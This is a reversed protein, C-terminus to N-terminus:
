SKNQVTRVLAKLREKVALYQSLPREFEDPRPQYSNDFWHNLSAGHDASLRSLLTLVTEDNLIWPGKSASFRFSKQQHSLCLNAAYIKATQFALYPSLFAGENQLYRYTM